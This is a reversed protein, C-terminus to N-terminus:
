MQDITAEEIHYDDKNFIKLVASQLSVSKEGEPECGASYLNQNVEITELQYGDGILVPM